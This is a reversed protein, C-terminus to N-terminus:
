ESDSGATTSEESSSFAEEVFTNAARRWYKRAGSKKYRERCRKVMEASMAIRVAFYQAVYSPTKGRRKETEEEILDALDAEADTLDSGLHAPNILGSRYGPLKVDCGQQLMSDLYRRILDDATSRPIEYRDLFAQWEGFRSLGKVVFLRKGEELRRKQGSLWCNHWDVAADVQTILEKREIHRTKEGFSVSINDGDVKAIEGFGFDPSYVPLGPKLEPRVRPYRRVPETTEPHKYAHELLQCIERSATEMSGDSTHIWSVTGDLGRDLRKWRGDRFFASVRGDGRDDLHILDHM